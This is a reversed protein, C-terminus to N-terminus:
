TLTNQWGKKCGVLLRGGDPQLTCEVGNLVIDAVIEVM